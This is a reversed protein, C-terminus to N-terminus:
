CLPRSAYAGATFFHQSNMRVSPSRNKARHVSHLAAVSIAFSLGALDGRISSGYSEVAKWRWDRM